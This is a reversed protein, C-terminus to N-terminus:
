RGNITSAVGSVRFVTRECLSTSFGFGATHSSAALKTSNLMAELESWVAGLDFAACTLTMNSEWCNESLIYHSNSVREEEYYEQQSADHVPTHM